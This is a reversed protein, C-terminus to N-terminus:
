RLYKMKAILPKDKKITKINGGITIDSTTEQEKDQEYMITTGNFITIDQIGLDIELRKPPLGTLVQISRLAAGKGKQIDKFGPPKQGLYRTVDKISKYPYKVVYYQELSGVKGQYWAIAGKKILKEKKELLEEEPLKIMPFVVSTSSPKEVAIPIPTPIPMPTPVSTPIPTPIPTPTPIPIPEPTPTPIPTPTPTPIPEPTPTPVTVPTPTEESLSLKEPTDIANELSILSSVPSAMTIDLAPQVGSIVKGEPTAGPTISPAPQEIPEAIGITAPTLEPKAAAQELSPEAVATGLNLLGQVELANLDHLTNIPNTVTEPNVLTPTNETFRDGIDYLSDRVQSVREPSLINYINQLDKSDSVKDLYELRQEPSMDWTDSDEAIAMEIAYPYVALTSLMGFKGLTAGYGNNEVSDVILDALYEAQNTINNGSLSVIEGTPKLYYSGDNIELYLTKNQILNELEKVAYDRESKIAETVIRIPEETAFPVSGGLGTEGFVEVPYGERAAWMAQIVSPNSIYLPFQLSTKSLDASLNPTVKWAGGEMVEYTAPIRALQDSIDILKEYSEVTSLYPKQYKNLTETVKIRAASEQATAEPALMKAIATEAKAYTNANPYIATVLDKGYLEFARNYGFSAVTQKVATVYHRAKQTNTLNMSEWQGAANVFGPQKPNLEYVALEAPTLEAGKILTTGRVEDVTPLAGTNKLINYNRDAQRMGSTAYDDVQSSTYINLPQGSPMRWQTVTGHAGAVVLAGEPIINGLQISGTAIGALTKVTRLPYMIPYTMANGYQVLSQKSLMKAPSQLLGRPLTKAAYAASHAIQYARDAKSLGSLSKASVSGVKGLWGVLPLLTLVDATISLVRQDENMNDWNRVTGYVPILSLGLEKAIESTEPQSDIIQQAFNVRGGISSQIFEERTQLPALTESEKIKRSEIANDFDNIYADYSLGSKGGYYGEQFLQTITDTDGDYVAGALRQADSYMKDIQEQNYTVTPIKGLTLIERLTDRLGVDVVARDLEPVAEAIIAKDEPIAKPTPIRTPTATASIEAQKVQGSTFQALKDRQLKNFGEIGLNDLEKRQEPSLNNWSGYNIYEGSKLQVLGVEKNQNYKEQEEFYERTVSIFKDTAKDYVKYLGSQIERLAQEFQEEAESWREAKGNALRDKIWQARDYIFSLEAKIKAEVAQENYEELGLINLKEQETTNLDLWGPHYKGSSDTYGELAIADGNNLIKVEREYTVAKGSIDQEPVEAVSSQRIQENTFGADKLVSEDVGAELAKSLDYGERRRYPYLEVLASAIQFTRDPDSSKNKILYPAYNHWIAVSKDLDIVTVEKGFEDTVTKTPILSDVVSPVFGRTRVVQGADNMLGAEKLQDISASGFGMSSLSAFEKRNSTIFVEGTNPNVLYSPSMDSPPAIDETGPITQTIEGPELPRGGQPPILTPRVTEILRQGVQREIPINTEPDAM